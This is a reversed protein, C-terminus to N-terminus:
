GLMERSPVIFVVASYVTQLGLNSGLDGSYSALMGDVQSHSETHYRILYLVAKGSCLTPLTPSTKAVMSESPVSRM